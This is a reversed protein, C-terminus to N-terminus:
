GLLLAIQSRLLNLGKFTINISQVRLPTVCFRGFKLM